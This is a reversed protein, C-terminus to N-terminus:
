LRVTSDLDDAKVAFEDSALQELSTTDFQDILWFFDGDWGVILPDCSVPMSAAKRTKALDWAAEAVIVIERFEPQYLKIKQKVSHPIVGTFRAFATKEVERVLLTWGAIVVILCMLSACFSALVGLTLGLFFKGWTAAASAQAGYFYCAEVVLASGCWISKFNESFFRQIRNSFPQKLAEQYYCKCCSPVNQKAPDTSIVCEGDGDISFVAFAPLKDKKWSFIEPSLISLGLRRGKQEARESRELEAIRTDVHQRAAAEAPLMGARAQVLKRRQERDSKQPELRHKSAEVVLNTSV